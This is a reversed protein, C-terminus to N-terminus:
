PNPTLAARFHDALDLAIAEEPTFWAHDDHEAPNLTVPHTASEIGEYIRAHIRLPRGTIDMWSHTAREATIQIALGTEESVERIAAAEPLEGPEVGGGPLEWRGSLFVGPARRILLIAGDREIRCYVLHKEGM